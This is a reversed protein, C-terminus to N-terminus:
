LEQQFSHPFTHLIEYSAREQPHPSLRATSLSLTTPLLPEMGWGTQTVLTGYDNNLYVISQSDM